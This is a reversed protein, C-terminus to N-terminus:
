IESVKWFTTVAHRFEEQVPGQGIYNTTNALRVSNARLVVEVDCRRDKYVPRACVHCNHSVSGVEIEHEVVM